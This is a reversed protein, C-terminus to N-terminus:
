KILTLFGHHIESGITLKYFYVGDDAYKSGIKGNWHTTKSNSEFVIEGWRNLIELHYEESGTYQIEFLDNIGDSNATLVNPIFLQENQVQPPIIVSGPISPPIVGNQDCLTITSSVDAFPYLKIDDFIAETSGYSIHGWNTFKIQQTTAIAKFEFLYRKGTETSGAPTQVNKMLYNGFGFDVGFIGSGAFGPGEGGSWFELFYKNGVILGSVNQSISVGTAGGFTADNHPYNQPISPLFCGTTVVCSTDGSTESCPLCFGNGLYVVNNGEAVITNMSGMIQAYTSAGGGSVTWNSITCGSFGSSNPCIYNGATCTTTEFGGNHILNTVNNSLSDTQDFCWICIVQAKLSGFCSIFTFIILLTSFPKM